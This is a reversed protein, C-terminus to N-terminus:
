VFLVFIVKPKDLRACLSLSALDWVCIAGHCGAEASAAFRGDSSVSICTIATWHKQLVALTAGSAADCVRVSYDTTCGIDDYMHKFTSGGGSLVRQMGDSSVAVSLVIDSHGRLTHLLQMSGTDWLKVTTDRSGSVLLSSSLALSTVGSDHSQMSALQQGTTMDWVRISKDDSGSYLRSGNCSVVCSTVTSTHGSFQIVPQQLAVFRWLKLSFSGSVFSSGDPTVALCSVGRPNQHCKVSALQQGTTIDWLLVSGSNDGSLLWVTDVTAALCTVRSTHRQFARVCRNSELDWQEVTWGDTSFLTCVVLFLDVSYAVHSCQYINFTFHIKCIIYYSITCYFLRFLFVQM